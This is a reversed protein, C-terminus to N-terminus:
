KALRSITSAQLLLFHGSKGFGDAQSLGLEAPIQFSGACFLTANYPDHAKETSTLLDYDDNKRTSYRRCM